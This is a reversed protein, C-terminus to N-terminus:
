DDYDEPVDQGSYSRMADLAQKYLEEQRAQSALSDTKAKLLENESELRKIELQERVTALKLFHSIVQASATGNKLQKEALDFALSALQSERAEPTTAPRRAPEVWKDHSEQPSM